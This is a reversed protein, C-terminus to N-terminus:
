RSLHIGVHSLHIESDVSIYESMVSIYGSYIWVRIYKDILKRRSNPVTTRNDFLATLIHKRSKITSLKTKCLDAAKVHSM